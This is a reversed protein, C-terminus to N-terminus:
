VTDFQGSKIGTVFAEWEARTYSLIPGDPAKSDGLVIMAGSAAVQICAGGDCEAFHWTLQGPAISDILEM